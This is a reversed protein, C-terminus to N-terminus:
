TGILAIAVPLVRVVTLSLVAYLTCRVNFQTGARAVFLGFM